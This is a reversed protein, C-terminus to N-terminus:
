QLLFTQKVLTLLFPERHNQLGQAALLRHVIDLRVVIQRSGGEVHGANDPLAVLRHMVHHAKQADAVALALHQERQALLQRICHGLRLRALVVTLGSIRAM